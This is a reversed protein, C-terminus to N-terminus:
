AGYKKKTDKWSIGDGRNEEHYRLREEILEKKWDPIQRLMEEDVSNLLDTALQKREEAPLAFLEDWNIM